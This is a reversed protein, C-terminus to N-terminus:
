GSPRTSWVVVASGFVNASVAFVVTAHLAPNTAITSQIPTANDTARPTIARMRADRPGALPRTWVNVIGDCRLSRATARNPGALLGGRGRRM